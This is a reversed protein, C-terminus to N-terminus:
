RYRAPRVDADEELELQGHAVHMLVRCFVCRVPSSFSFDAMEAGETITLGDGEIAPTVFGCRVCCVHYGIVFSTRKQPVRRVDGRELRCPRKSTPRLKM